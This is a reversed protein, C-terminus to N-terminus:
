FATSVTLLVQAKDNWMFEGSGGSYYSLGSPTQVITGPPAYYGVYKLTVNYKQQVLAHIGASYTVSAEQNGIGSNGLTQGNGWIGFNSSIPLDVDVGPLAQLWSPDFLINANVENLTACGNKEGNNCAYGTGNYLARLHTVGLLRTYAIEGILNGTQWLPTTPLVYIGNAVVNLLNGRPGDNGSPDLAPNGGAPQALATNQRINAEFGASVVGINKDLSLGYLHIHRAYALRAQGQANLEFVSYPVVDDFQRFYAGLQGNLFDPSWIAEIGFNGDVNAPNSDKGRPFEGAVSQPGVFFPDAVGLLTGGEPFVDPRYEFAYQFGLSVDPTVQAHISVQGRPMFLDKVEKGPADVADLLNIPSQGYSIAQFGNFLANGWYETFRGVKVTVPAGAVDFNGFAYANNLEVGENYWYETFSAYHGSPESTLASYPVGPAFLGPKTAVGGNYAFDKWAAVSIDVGYDRQYVISLESAVDLRNTTVDGAEPFKYENNQQTPANAILPNRSQARVGLSYALNTDLEVDWDPSTNFTHAKAPVVWGAAVAFAVLTMPTRLKGYVSSGPKYKM